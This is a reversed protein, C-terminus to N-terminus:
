DCKHKELLEKAKIVAENGSTLIGRYEILANIVDVLEAKSEELAAIREDRETIKVTAELLALSLQKISQETM